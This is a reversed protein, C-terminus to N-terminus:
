PRQFYRRAFFPIFQAIGLLSFAFLPTKFAPFVFLGLFCSAEALAIGVVFFVFAKRSDSLRPLVAWRIVISAAVPLLGAAAVLANAPGYAPHAPAAVGLFYYIQCLGTFFAAWVVWWVLLPQPPSPPHPIM